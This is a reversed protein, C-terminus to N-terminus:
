GMRQYPRRREQPVPLEHLIEKRQCDGLKEDSPKSDHWDGRM